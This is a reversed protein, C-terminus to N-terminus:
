MRSTFFGPGFGRILVDERKRVRTAAVTGITPDVKRDVQLDLLVAPFTKGQSSHVTMAYGPSLPLQTRKVKLFKVKRCRDLYWDTTRPVIPYLGAFEEETMTFGPSLTAHGYIKSDKAAPWVFSSRCVQGRVLLTINGILIQELWEQSLVLIRQGVIPSPEEEQELPKARQLVLQESSPNSAMAICRHLKPRPRALLNDTQACSCDASEKALYYIYIYIYLIHQEYVKSLVDLSHLVCGLALPAVTQLEKGAAECRM